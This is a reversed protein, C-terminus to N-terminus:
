ELLMTTGDSFMIKETSLNRIQVPQMIVNEFRRLFMSEDMTWNTYAPYDETPVLNTYHIMTISCDMGHRSFGTVRVLVKRSKSQYIQHLEIELIALETM